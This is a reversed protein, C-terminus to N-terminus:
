RQRDTAVLCLSGNKLVYVDRVKGSYKMTAGEISSTALCSKSAIHALAAVVTPDTADAQPSPTLM